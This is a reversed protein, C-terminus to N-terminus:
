ARPRWGLEEIPWRIWLRYEEDLLDWIEQLLKTSWGETWWSSGLHKLLVCFNATIVLALPDRNSLLEIFSDEMRYLWSFINSTLAAPLLTRSTANYLPVPSRERSRSTTDSGNLVSCFCAELETINHEYVVATDDDRARYAALRRLYAMQAHEATSLWATSAVLSRAEAGMRSSGLQLMLGFPGAVLQERWSEIISRVGRLLFISEVPGSRSVLFPEGPERPCAWAYLFTLVAAIYIASCNDAVVNHLNSVIDQLALGHESQAVNRYFARQRDSSLSIHLASIAFISHMVYAHSLGVQPVNIRWLSKLMPDASLTQSTLTTYNHLLELHILEVNPIQSSCSTPASSSLYVPTGCVNPNPNPHSDSPAASRDSTAAPTSPLALGHADAQATATPRRFSCALGRKACNTCCPKREDCQRLPTCLGNTKCARSLNSVM